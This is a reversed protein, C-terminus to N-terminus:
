RCREYRAHWKTWTKSTVASFRDDIAWRVFRAKAAEDPCPSTEILNVLRDYFERTDVQRAVSTYAWDGCRYPRALADFILDGITERLNEPVGYLSFYQLVGEKTAWPTRIQLNYWSDPHQNEWQLFLVAYPIFEEADPGIPDEFFRGVIRSFLRPAAQCAADQAQQYALDDSPVRVSNQITRDWAEYLRDLAQQAEWFQERQIAEAAKRAAPDDSILDFAWEFDEPEPQFMEPAM